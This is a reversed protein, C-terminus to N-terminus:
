NSYILVWINTYYSYHKNTLVFVFFKHSPFSSVSSPFSSEILYYHNITISYLFSDDNDHSRKLIIYYALLRLSRSVMSPTFIHVQTTYTYIHKNRVRVQPEKSILTNLSPYYKIIDCPIIM